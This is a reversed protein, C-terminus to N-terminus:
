FRMVTKWFEWCFIVQLYILQLFLEHSCTDPNKLDTAFEICWANKICVLSLM